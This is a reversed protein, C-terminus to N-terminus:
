FVRHLTIELGENTMQWREEWFKAVLPVSVQKDYFLALGPNPGQSNVSCLMELLGM